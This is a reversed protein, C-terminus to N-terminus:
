TCRGSILDAEEQFIEKLFDLVARVRPTQNMDLHVIAWIDHLDISDPVARCISPDNDAAFCDVLGIGVGAKVLSLIQAESNARAVIRGNPFLQHLKQAIQTEDLHHPYGILPPEDSVILERSKYAATAQQGLMRGVADPHVPKNPRVAVDAERRSLDLLRFDTAFSLELRPYRELLSPLRPIVLRDIFLDLATIRVPGEVRGASGEIQRELKLTKQEIEEAYSIAVEGIHTLVFGGATRDFLRAGLDREMTIIRRGVTTPDVGLDRGAAALTKKRGISLVYRLDDWNM